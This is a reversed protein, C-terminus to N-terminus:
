MKRIYYRVVGWISVEECVEVTKCGEACLFSKGEVVNLRKIRFEGDIYAIVTSGDTPVISKDILLIDGKTDEVQAFFTSAANSVLLKNLDLSINPEISTNGRTESNLPSISKNDIDTPFFPM